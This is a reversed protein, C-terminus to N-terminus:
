ADGAELEARVFRDTRLAAVLPVTDVRACFELDAELGVAALRRGSISRRLLGPLDHRWADFVAVATRAGDDPEAGAMLALSGALCGAAAVDDLAM